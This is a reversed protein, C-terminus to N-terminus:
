VCVLACIFIIWFSLGFIVSWDTVSSNSTYDSNILLQLAAWRMENETFDLWASSFGLIAVFMALGQSNRSLVASYGFVKSSYYKEFATM